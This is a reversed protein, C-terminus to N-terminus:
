TNINEAQIIGNSIKTNLWVHNAEKTNWIKKMQLSFHLYAYMCVYM